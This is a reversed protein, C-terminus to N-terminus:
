ESLLTEVSDAIQYCFDGFTIPFAKSYYRQIIPSCGARQNRINDPCFSALVHFDEM